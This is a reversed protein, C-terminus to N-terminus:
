VPFVDISTLQHLVRGIAWLFEEGVRAAAEKGMVVCIRRGGLTGTAAERPPAGRAPGSAGKIISESEGYSRSRCEVPGSLRIKHHQNGLLSLHVSYSSMSREVRAIAATLFSSRTANGASIGVCPGFGRMPSIHSARGKNKASGTTRGSAGDSRNQPTGRDLM